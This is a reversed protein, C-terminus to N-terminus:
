GKWRAGNAWVRGRGPWGTEEKRGSVEGAGAASVVALGRDLSM